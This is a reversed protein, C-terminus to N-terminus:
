ILATKGLRRNSILTLNNGNELKQKIIKVEKERDCFYDKSIYNETPFPNLEEKM